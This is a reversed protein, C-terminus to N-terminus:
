RNPLGSNIDFCFPQSKNSGDNNNLADMDEKSNMQKVSENLGEFTQPISADYVNTNAVSEKMENIYYNCKFTGVYPPIDAVSFYKCIPKNKCTSCNNVSLSKIAIDCSTQNNM